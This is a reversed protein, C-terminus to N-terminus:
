YRIIYDSRTMGARFFVLGMRFIDVTLTVKEYKKIEEWVEGMGSSSHIDDLVIVSQDDSM